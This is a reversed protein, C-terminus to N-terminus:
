AGEPKPGSTPPSVQRLPFYLGVATGKGVESEIRVFGGHDEVAKRVISLGLGTGKPAFRTTYFPEFVVDQREKAIGEGTDEVRVVAYPEGRVEEVATLVSLTGGGPMADIANALLHGIATAAQAGDVAFPPVDHFLREIRIARRACREEYFKIADELLPKINRTELRPRERRSLILVNRLIGELRTVESLIFEAYEREPTGAPLKKQLRRTFGGVSVLPNRMEDAINLTIRGLASFKEAEALEEGLRQREIGTRYREIVGALTDAVATLFAEEEGIRRHGEKVFINIVGLARGASVIPICYHGHPFDETFHVEHSEDVCDAFVPACTSAATGCLCKGFSIRECPPPQVAPNRPAKLVLVGPEDDVLYIFGRSELALNPITLILDLVRDMQEELPVPELSIKLVNSIVRQIMYNRELREETRVRDTIDRVAAVALLRGESQLPSLSIDAPFEEGNKKLGLIKLGTGMSRVRPNGFYERLHARHRDHFREPIFMELHRGVVDEGAYGFLKEFQANCLAIRGDEEVYVLADPASELLREYRNRADLYDRRCTETEELQRRMSQLDQLLQEQSVSVNGEGLDSTEGPPRDMSNLQVM